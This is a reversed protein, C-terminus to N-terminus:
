RIRTGGRTSLLARQSLRSDSNKRADIERRLGAPGKARGAVESSRASGADRNGV